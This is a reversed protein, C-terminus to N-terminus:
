SPSLCDRLPQTLDMRSTASSGHPVRSPPSYLSFVPSIVVSTQLILQISSFRKLFFSCCMCLYHLWLSVTNHSLFPALFPMVPLCAPCQPLSLAPHLCSALVDVPTLFQHPSLTPGQRPQWSCHHQSSPFFTCRNLHCTNTPICLTSIVYTIFLSFFTERPLELVEKLNRASADPHIPLGNALTPFGFM